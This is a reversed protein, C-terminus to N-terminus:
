PAFGGTATAAGRLGNTCEAEPRETGVDVVQPVFEAAGLAYVDFELECHERTGAPVELAPHPTFVVVNPRSAVPHGTTWRVWPCSTTITDDGGYAVFNGGPACPILRASKGNCQLFFRLAHVVTGTGNDIRTAGFIVRVRQTPGIRIPYELQLNLHCSRVDDGYTPTCFALLLAALLLQKM